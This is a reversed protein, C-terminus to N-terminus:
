KCGRLSKCMHRAIIGACHEFAKPKCNNGDAYDVCAQEEGGVGVKGICTPKM